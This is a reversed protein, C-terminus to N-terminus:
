NSRRRVVDEERFPPAECPGGMNADRCIEEASRSPPPPPPGVRVCGPPCPPMVLTDLEAPTYIRNFDPPAPRHFDGGPSLELGDADSAAPPPCYAPRRERPQLCALSRALQGRDLSADPANFTPTPPAERPATRRPADARAPTEARVREAIVVEIVGPGQELVRTHSSLALLTCALAVMLAGGALSFGRRRLASFGDANLAGARLAGRVIGAPKEGTAPNM